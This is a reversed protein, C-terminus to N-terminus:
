QNILNSKEYYLACYHTPPAQLMFLIMINHCSKEKIFFIIIIQSM